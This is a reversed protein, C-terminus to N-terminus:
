LVGRDEELRLEVETASVEVLEGVELCRGLSCTYRLLGVFTVGALSAVIVVPLGATEEEEPLSEALRSPCYRCIYAVAEAAILHESQVM